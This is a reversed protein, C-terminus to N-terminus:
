EGKGTIKKVWEALPEYLPPCVKKLFLGILGLLLINGTVWRVIPENTELNILWNWDM